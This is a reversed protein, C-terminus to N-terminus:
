FKNSDGLSQCLNWLSQRYVDANKYLSIKLNFSIWCLYSHLFQMKEWIFGTKSYHYVLTILQLVLWDLCKLIQCLFTNDVGKVTIRVGWGLSSDVNNICMFHQAMRITIKFANKWLEFSYIMLTNSFQFM